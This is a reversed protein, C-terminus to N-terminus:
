GEADNPRVPIRNEGVAVASAMYAPVVPSGDIMTWGLQDKILNLLLQMRRPSCMDKVNVNDIKLEAVFELPDKKMIEMSIVLRRVGYNDFGNNWAIVDLNM